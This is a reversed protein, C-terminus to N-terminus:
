VSFLYQFLQLFRDNEIDLHVFRVVYNAEVTINSNDIRNVQWYIFMPVFMYMKLLNEIVQTFLLTLHNISDLNSAINM